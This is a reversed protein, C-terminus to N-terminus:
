GNGAGEGPHVCVNSTERAVALGQSTGGGQATDGVKVDVVKPSGRKGALKSEPAIFHAHSRPLMHSIFPRSPEFGGREALSDRDGTGRLM